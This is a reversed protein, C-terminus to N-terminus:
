SAGNAREEEAACAACTDPGIGMPRGCHWCRRQSAASTQLTWCLRCGDEPREQPADAIPLDGQHWPAGCVAVVAPLPRHLHIM